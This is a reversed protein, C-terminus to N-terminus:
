CLYILLNDKPQKKTKFLCHFSIAIYSEGASRGQSSSCQFRGAGIDQESTKVRCRIRHRTKM